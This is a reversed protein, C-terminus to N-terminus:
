EEQLNLLMETIRANDHYEAYDDLDSVEHVGLGRLLESSLVYVPLIKEKDERQVVFGRMSLNRLIITCNVGRIHEIEPQTIPGRYAIITLTELQPRTLDGEFEKKALKKTVEGFAPNSGLEVAGDGKVVHIGSGEVNRVEMLEEVAGDVEEVKVELLGALMKWCVPRTSLFLIAEIKAALESM